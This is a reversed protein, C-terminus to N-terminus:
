FSEFALLEEPTGLIDINEVCDLVFKRGRSILDNYMPAIYLENSDTINNDLRYQAADLFDMPRKFHYLGTLANNSIVVKEATETVFGDIEKAFSFRQETSFFSGIVGDHGKDLLKNKLSTSEFKTDINFILLEEEKIIFDSAKLVTEAQGRTVEELLIYQIDFQLHKYKSNIFKVVGLNEDHEKLAIFILNTCLDLPLSDISWELLSKGKTEIKWKPQLYGASRFRSGMGAMPIVFNM